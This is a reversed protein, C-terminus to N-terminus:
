CVECTDVSGVHTLDFTAFTINGEEVNDPDRISESARRRIEQNLGAKLHVQATLLAL